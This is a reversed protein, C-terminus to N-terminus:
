DDDEGDTLTPTHPTHPTHPDIGVSGVSGVPPTTSDGREIGVSGVSGVPPLYLGRTPRVVRGSNLARSLYTSAEKDGLDLDRAVDKPTVGDPHSAVYTIIEAMRDGVGQTLEGVKANVSAAALSDGNLSWRGNDEFQLSYSGEKADRSTVHLIAGNDERDRKLVLITDAAGAIGNTGSVADLFDSAEQKRTHHVVIM